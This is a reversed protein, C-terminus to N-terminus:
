YTITGQDHFTFAFTYGTPSKPDQTVSNCGTYAIYGTAHVYRGTGGTIFEGGAYPSSALPGTTPCYTPPPPGPNSPDDKTFIRDGTATTFTAVFPQNPQADVVVLGPGLPNAVFAGRTHFEFTIVDIPGSGFGIATIALTAHDGRPRGQPAAPSAEAIAASTTLAAGAILASLVLTRKRAM